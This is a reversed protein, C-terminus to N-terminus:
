KKNISVMVAPDNTLWEIFERTIYMSARAGHSFIFEGKENKSSKVKEDIESYELIKIKGNVSLHLGVKEDASRKKLYHSVIDFGNKIMYGLSTPDALKLLVNDVPGLYIYKV